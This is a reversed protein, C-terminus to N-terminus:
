REVPHNPPHNELWRRAGAVSRVEGRVQALRLGRLLEGLEPGPPIGAIRAVEDASLLQPPHVIRDGGRQWQTWWRRWTRAAIEGPDDIAAATALLAPFSQGALHILERREAVEGDVVAIAHELMSAAQLAASREPKPWSYESLSQEPPWGWGRILLALPATAGASRVASPVPHREPAALRGVAAANRDMWSPDPAAGVPASYRFIGLELMTRIGREAGPSSMMLALEQGVRARPAYALSPALERILAATRHDIRFSDLQALFRAARLLRVPDDQLNGRSV